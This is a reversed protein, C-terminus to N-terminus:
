LGGEKSKAIVYEVLEARQRDDDIGPFVMSTGPVMGEADM